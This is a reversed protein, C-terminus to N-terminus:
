LAGQVSRNGFIGRGVRVCTSGHTIALQLDDSMGMSLTNINPYQQSLNQMLQAMAAFDAALAQADLDLAPITMLGRLSLQPLAEIAAALAPLDTRHVGSKNPDDSINVQICVALPPKDTPRQDNLRQAIKLRDVTHVWDFHTAVLRTKNSQLPGIFHWTIPTLTCRQIKDVGEQVYNEGFHRAGAHWATIISELPFTKSVAMVDVDTVDRGAALAAEDAERRVQQWNQQITDTM